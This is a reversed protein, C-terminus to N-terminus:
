IYIKNEEGVMCWARVNAIDNIVAELKETIEKDTYQYEPLMAAHIKKVASEVLERFLRLETRSVFHSPKKFEFEAVFFYSYAGDEKAALKGKEFAEKKSCVMVYESFLVRYGWKKM